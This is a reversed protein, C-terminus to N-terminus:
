RDFVWKGHNPNGPHYIRYPLLVWLRASPNPPNGDWVDHAIRWRRLDWLRQDEFALEAWRETYIKEMTLSTLSNPPFGARERLTNIYQLAQAEQGLQLAAEAANLYIEGLRF